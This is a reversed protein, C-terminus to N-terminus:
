VVVMRELKRDMLWLYIKWMWKSQPFFPVSRDDIYADVCIKRGFQRTDSQQDGPTEDPHRNVGAFFLQNRTCFRMADNLYEYDPFKAGGFNERSTWLVIRDGMAQRKRIWDAVVTNLVTDKTIRPWANLAITSDFDVAITFHKSM